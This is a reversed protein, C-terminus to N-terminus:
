LTPVKPSFRSASTIRARAAAAFVTVLMMPLVHLVLRELSTAIHWAQDYPTVAYTVIWFATCGLLTASAYALWRGSQETRYWWAAVAGVQLAPWVVGWDSPQLVVWGLFVESIARTPVWWRHVNLLKVWSGQFFTATGTEPAWYVKLLFVAAVGPIAGLAIIGLTTLENKRTVVFREVAFVGMLVAAYILGENKTWALLGLLIGSVFSLRPHAAESSLIAGLCAYSALLYFALPVDATQSMAWKTLAPTTWLLAASTLALTWSRTEWVMALGLMGLALVFVASTYVAPLKDEVSVAMEQAAVAAAVLLPYDPHSFGEVQKLTQPFGEYGRYLFRVRTNWMAVADWSGNPWARAILISSALLGAISIACLGSAIWAAPVCEARPERMSTQRKRRPKRREVLIAAALLVLGIATFAAGGPRPLGVLRWYFLALSAVGFGVGPGLALVLPWATVGRLLTGTLAVGWAVLLVVVCLQLM